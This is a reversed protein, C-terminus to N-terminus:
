GTTLDSAVRNTEFGFGFGQSLYSASASALARPFNHLRLRLWHRLFTSFGFGHGLFWPKMFGFGFGHGLFWPKMFGFGFRFGAEAGHRNALLSFSSGRGAASLLRSRDRWLSRPTAALPWFVAVPWGLVVLAFAILGSATWLGGVVAGRSRWAFCGDLRDVGVTDDVAYGLVSLPAVVPTLWVPCSLWGVLLPGLSGERNGLGFIPFGPLFGLQLTVGFVRGGWWRAPHASILRSLCGLVSYAGSSEGAGDGQLAHLSSSPSGVPVSRTAPTRRLFAVGPDGAWSHVLSGSALECAGFSRGSARGGRGSSWLRAPPSSSGRSAVCPCGLVGGVEVRGESPLSPSSPSAGPHTVESSTGAHHFSMPAPSSLAQLTFVFSASAFSRRCFSGVAVFALGLM